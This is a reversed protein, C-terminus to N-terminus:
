IDRLSPEVCTLVSTCSANPNFTRTTPNENALMMTSSAGISITTSRHKDIITTTEIDSLPHEWRIVWCMIVAISSCAIIAM